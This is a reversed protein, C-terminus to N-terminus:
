GRAGLPGDVCARRKSTISYRGRPGMPTSPGQFRGRRVDEAYDRAARIEDDLRSYRMVFKPTLETFRGLMDDVVLIRGDFAPSGGIVTTPMAVAGTLERAQSEAVGEPDSPRSRNDRGLSQTPRGFPYESAQPRVARTPVM